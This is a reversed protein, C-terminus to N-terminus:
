DIEILQLKLYICQLILKQKLKEKESYKDLFMVQMSLRNNEPKM